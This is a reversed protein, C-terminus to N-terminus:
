FILPNGLFSSLLVIACFPIFYLFRFPKVEYRIETDWPLQGTTRCLNYCKLHRYFDYLPISYGAGKAFVRFTRSFAENRTLLSGDKKRIAIGLLWKGPTTGWKSLFFPETLLILIWIFLLLVRNGWFGISNLKIQVLATCPFQLILFLIEMDIARAYFRLAPHAILTPPLSTNTKPTNEQTDTAPINSM